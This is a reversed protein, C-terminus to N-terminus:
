PRRLAAAPDISAARRVPVYSATLTAVSVLGVTALLSAPDRASVAFLFHALLRSAALAGVMGIALGCATFWLTQGLVLRRVSGSDAGLAMRIGIERTRDSVLAALVGYIGIASLLLASVAFAGLVHLQVRRDVLTQDVVDTMTTV